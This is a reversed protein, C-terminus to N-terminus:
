KAVEVIFADYGNSKLEDRLREANKKVEFYGVQVRYGTSTSVPESPKEAEPAVYKVGFHNCLGKVIAEAIDKKHDIIWQAEEKNDHFAVEIYATPANAQLIEAFMAITINDSSGPTIPALTNM